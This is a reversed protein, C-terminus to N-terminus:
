LFDAVAAKSWKYLDEQTTLNYSEPSSKSIQVTSALKQTWLLLGAFTWSIMDRVGPLYQVLKSEKNIIGMQEITVGFMDFLKSNTLWDNSDSSSTDGSRSTGFMAELTSAIGYGDNPYAIMHLMMRGIGSPGGVNTAVWGPCISVARVSYDLRRSLARAHLIQALKSNAYSRERHFFSGTDGLSARPPQGTEVELDQGDSLWHFSSSIQVIKPQSSIASKQLLPMLKETLLFHSLYNVGFVLDYGQKTEIPTQYNMLVEHSVKYHLGANNVLFDLKDLKGLINESARSVSQLDTLNALVTEIRGSGRGDDDSDGDLDQQLMRLKSPSRGIAIITAGLGHLYRTLGLGIGSTAGTIAINVGLLPQGADIAERTAGVANAAKTPIGFPELTPQPFQILFAVLVSVISTVVLFLSSSSKMMM